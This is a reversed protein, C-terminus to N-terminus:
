RVVRLEPLAFYPICGSNLAGCHPPPASEHTSWRGGFLGERILQLISLDLSITLQVETTGANVHNDGARGRFATDAFRRSNCAEGASEGMHAFRHMYDIEVM